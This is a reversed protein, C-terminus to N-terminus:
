SAARMRTTNMELDTLEILLSPLLFLFLAKCEGGSCAIAPGVSALLLLVLISCGLLGMGTQLYHPQSTGLTLMFDTSM